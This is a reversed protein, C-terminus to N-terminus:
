APPDRLLWGPMAKANRGGQGALPPAVVSQLFGQLSKVLCLGHTAGCIWLQQLLGLESTCRSAGNYLHKSQCCCVCPAHM